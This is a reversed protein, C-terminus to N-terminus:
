PRWWALALDFWLAFIPLGFYVIAIGVILSAAIRDWHWNKHLEKLWDWM